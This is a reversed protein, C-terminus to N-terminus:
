PEIVEASQPAKPTSSTEKIETNEDISKESSLSTVSETTTSTEFTNKEVDNEPSKENLSPSDPSNNATNSNTTIGRDDQPTPPSSGNFIGVIRDKLNRFWNAIKGFFTQAYEDKSPCATSYSFSNFLFFIFLQATWLYM